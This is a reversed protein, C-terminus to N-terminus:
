PPSLLTSIQAPSLIRTKRFVLPMPHDYVTFSEDAHGWNWVISDPPSAALLPPKALDAYSVPDDQISIGALSPDNRSFAVLDFGLRGDFLLQYYRSSIPYRPQLRAIPSYLRPSALIIYDTTELTNVLRNLKLSEDPDYMPLVQIRYETPSRAPEVYRLSEPLAEDWHEIAIRSDAPINRYIWDSILLWPHQQSYIATFAVAYVLTAVGVLALLLCLSLRLAVRRMLESGLLSGIMVSAMLFLFPLLPALYRLYKSYQAGIMVFYVFPWSLVFGDRWERGRWWRWAFAAGGGWALIGLPAGTGWVSSQVIQYVFPITDAYQRTYPYDLWGRAVSWETIVQSVYRVPDILAYPQSIVFVGFALAAVGALTRRTSWLRFLYSRLGSWGAVKEVPDSRVHTVAVAIPVVLPLATVKTSLALGLCVSTAVLDLRKGTEAFRAALFITAAVLLTLLTDVAYFHSLQIDLVTLATGAAAALGVKADYLRRGLLFVLAITGLDFAGSLARGLLALSVLQVNSWPVPYPNAPAALGLVRILYIPFSGYAFFKPNLPSDPSFFALVSSPWQLNSAVMLIQREDPHFLYGQDWGLGSFRFLGGVILILVLVVLPWIEALAEVRPVSSTRRVSGPIGAIKTELASPFLYSLISFRPKLHIRRIPNM